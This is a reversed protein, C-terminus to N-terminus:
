NAKLLFSLRQKCPRRAAWHPPTCAYRRETLPRHLLQAPCLRPPWKYCGQRYGSFEALRYLHASCCWTSFYSYWHHLIMICISYRRNKQDSFMLCWPFSYCKALATIIALSILAHWPNTNKVWSPHLTLPWSQQGLIKMILTKHKCPSQFLGQSRWSNLSWLILLIHAPPIQTFLKTRIGHMQFVM